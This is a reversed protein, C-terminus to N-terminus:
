ARPEKRPVPIARWTACQEGRTVPLTKPQFRDAAEAPHRDVHRDCTDCLRLGAGQCLHFHKIPM